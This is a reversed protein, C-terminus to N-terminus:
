YCYELKNQGKQKDQKRTDNYHEITGAFLCKLKSQIDGTSICDQMLLSVLEMEKESLINKSRRM